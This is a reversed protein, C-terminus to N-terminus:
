PRRWPENREALDVNDRVSVLRFEVPVNEVGWEKAYGDVFRYIAEARDRFAARHLREEDIRIVIWGEVNRSLARVPGTPVFWTEILDGRMAHAVDDLRQHWESWELSTTLAPLRGYRMTKATDSSLGFVVLTSIVLVATLGVIFFRRRPWSATM